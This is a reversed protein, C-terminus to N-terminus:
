PRPLNQSRFVKVPLLQVNETESTNKHERSRLKISVDTKYSKCHKQSNCYLLVLPFTHTKLSGSQGKYICFVKVLGFHM